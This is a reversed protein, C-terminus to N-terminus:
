KRLLYGTNLYGSVNIDYENYLTNAILTYEEETKRMKEKKACFAAKQYALPLIEMCSSLENEFLIQFYELAKAYQRKEVASFGLWYVAWLDDPFLEKAKLLYEENIKTGHKYLFDDINSNAMYNHYLLIIDHSPMDRIFNNNVFAYQKLEELAFLLERSQKIRWFSYDFNDGFYLKLYYIGMLFQGQQDFPIFTTDPIINHNYLAYNEVLDFIYKINEYTPNYQYFTGYVKPEIIIGDYNNFLKINTDIDRSLIFKSENAFDIDPLYYFVYSSFNSGYHQKLRYGLPIWDYKNSKPDIYDNIINNGAHGSGFIMVAKAKYDTKDMIDIINQASFSDRYNLIQVNMDNTSPPEPFVVKIQESIPLSNNIEVISKYFLIYEYRWGANIWPYFMFFEYDVSEPLSRELASGGELFIYRVGADYFAKINSAIFLQENVTAHDEGFMIIKKNEMEDIILDISNKSIVCRNKIISSISREVNYNKCGSLSIITYIILLFIIKM